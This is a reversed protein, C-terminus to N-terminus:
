PKSVVKKPAVMVNLTFVGLSSPPIKNEGRTATNDPFFISGIMREVPSVTGRSLGNSNFVDRLDVVQDTVILKLTEMGYPPTVKYYSGDRPLILEQGLKLEFDAAKESSNFYPAIVNGKNLPDIDLVNFYGAKSGQNKVRIIFPAGETIVFNGTKDKKLPPLIRAVKGDNTTDVQVIEITFRFDSGYSFDLKRLYTSRALMEMSHIIQTEIGQIKLQFSDIVANQRDGLYIRDGRLNQYLYCDAEEELGFVKKKKIEDTLKRRLTTDRIDLRVNLHMDGPSQELVYAWTGKLTSAPKDATVISKAPESTTIFGTALPKAKLYDRTEAPFFGVKSGKNLNQLWGGNLVLMDGTDTVSYYPKITVFAGNLVLRDLYGEALPNQGPSTVAMENRIKDFLGSYTSGENVKGFSKVFASTLPGMSGNPCSIETNVKGADSAFFAVFPALVTNEEQELITQDGLGATKEHSKIWDDPALLTNTGRATGLGRLGTGSHCSDLLVILQGKSGLKERILLLYKGLEEDSIHKAGKYGTTNYNKLADYPVISEDYGDIEDGSADWMQQGHGSFHFYVLDGPASSIQLKNLAAIIGDRTAAADELVVIDAAAFGQFLLADKVAVIDNHANLSLWDTGPAYNSVGVVLARKRALANAPACACALLLLTIITNKMGSQNFPRRSSLRGKLPFIYSLRESRCDDM